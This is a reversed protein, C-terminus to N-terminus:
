YVLKFHNSFGGSEIPARRIEVGSSDKFFVKMVVAGNKYLRAEKVKGAFATQVTLFASEVSTSDNSSGAYEIFSTAITM